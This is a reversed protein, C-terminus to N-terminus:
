GRFTFIFFISLGLKNDPNIDKQFDKKLFYYTLDITNSMCQIASNMFCTNGLNSLGCLGHSAGKSLLGSLKDVELYRRVYILKKSSKIKLEVDRMKELDEWQKNSEEENDSLENNEYTTNKTSEM